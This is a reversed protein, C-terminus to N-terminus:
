HESKQHNQVRARKKRTYRRNTVDITFHLVFTTNEHRSDHENQTLQHRIYQQRYRKNNARLRLLLEFIRRYKEPGIRGKEGGQTSDSPAKWRRLSWDEDNIFIGRYQVAPAQLTRFADSMVLRDRREPVVDGWWVWPSVGAQRSLELLGYACGRGNNGVVWIQGGYPAVFFADMSQQLSDVPVKMQRLTKLMGSRAKDLEVIHITADKTQVARQGTVQRMDDAFMEMAMSVVPAAAGEVQCSVPHQGDYWVVAAQAGMSFVFLLHCIIFSLFRNMGM